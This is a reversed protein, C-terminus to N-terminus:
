HVIDNEQLENYIDNINKRNAGLVVGLLISAKEENLQKVDTGLKIGEVDSCQLLDERTFYDSYDYSRHPINHEILGHECAIEFAIELNEHQKRCVGTKSTPFLVGTYPSVFHQLLNVNRYNVVLYPDRCIPCPNGIIYRENIICEKRTHQKPLRGKFNRIYLEWLHKTNGYAAKFAESNIYQISTEVTHFEFKTGKISTKERFGLEATHKQFQIQSDTLAPPKKAYFRKNANINIVQTAQTPLRFLELCKLKNVSQAINNTILKSTSKIM